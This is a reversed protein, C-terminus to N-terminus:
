KNLESSSLSASESRELKRLFIKVGFSSWNPSRMALATSSVDLNETTSLDSSSLSATSTSRLQKQFMLM